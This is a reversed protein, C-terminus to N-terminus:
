DASATSTSGARRNPDLLLADRGSKRPDPRELLDRFPDWFKLLGETYANGNQVILAQVREPHRLALRYGTPAGYDMVYLSYKNLKLQQVLKDVVNPMNAFTYEYASHDPM